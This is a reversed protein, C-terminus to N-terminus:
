RRRMDVVQAAPKDDRNGTVIAGARETAARLPDDLLHSYRHTTGPQSHGLLAGIIPLSLGASALISAYSHRLDHVRVGDLGAQRCIRAWAGKLEIMHGAATRAPFVFKSPEVNGGAVRRDATAKIEALLQRAPTNLPIRHSRGQKTASSPKMWVGKGKLDFQSWEAALLEGKRCGTLLLLRVANAVAQNPFDALAAMLRRLEDGSLYRQRPQERNKQLGRCPNDPRWEWTIALAFAKSLLAAVRNARTPTGKSIKAHLREVDRHGVDVVKRGGFEPRVWQRILSEDEGASRSRKKPAHEALYRDCLDAVTPASREEHREGMPDRGQDVLRKLRRAEERAAAVPWDNADGITLRREVGHSRYNLVFSRRRARTVRLGFGKVLSDYYIVYAAKGNTPAEASKVFGATLKEGRAMADASTDTYQGRVLRARSDL